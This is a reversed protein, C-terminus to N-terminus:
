FRRWVNDPATSGSDISQPILFIRYPHVNSSWSRDGELTVKLCYFQGYQSNEPALSFSTTPQELETAGDEFAPRDCDAKSHLIKYELKEIEFGNIDRGPMSFHGPLSLRLYFRGYAQRAYLNFDDNLHRYYAERDPNPRADNGMRSFSYDYYTSQMVTRSFNSFNALVDGHGPNRVPQEVVFIKWPILDWGPLSVRLGVKFCYYRGYDSASLPLLMSTQPETVIMNYHNTFLRSTCDQPQRVTNYFFYEDRLRFDTTNDNIANVIDDGVCGNCDNRIPTNMTAPINIMVQLQNDVERSHLRFQSDMHDVYTQYAAEQRDSNRHYWHYFNGQAQAQQFPNPEVGISSIALSNVGMLSILLLVALLLAVCGATVRRSRIFPLFSM